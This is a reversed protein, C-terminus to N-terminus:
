LGPAMPNFRSIDTYTKKKVTKPLVPPRNESDALHVKTVRSCKSFNLVVDLIAATERIDNNIEEYNLGITVFILEFCM